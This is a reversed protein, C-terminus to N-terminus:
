VLKKELLVLMVDQIGNFVCTVTDSETFGLKRYMSRAAVNKVQTDIRLVSCGNEMAYKEYYAEFTKGYGRGSSEPDIALTHMVMIKDDESEFKWKGKVYCPDQIKNLIVSGVITGKEEGLFIDGRALAKEATERVPYVGEQWGVCARGEKEAKHIRDYIQTIADLDIETAKRIDVIEGRISKSTIM